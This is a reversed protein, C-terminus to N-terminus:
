KIKEWDKAKIKIEVEINNPEHSTNLWNSFTIGMNNEPIIFDRLGKPNAWARM